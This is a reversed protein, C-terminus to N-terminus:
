LAGAWILCRCCDDPDVKKEIVIVNLRNVFTLHLSNIQKILVRLLKVKVYLQLRVPAQFDSYIVVAGM